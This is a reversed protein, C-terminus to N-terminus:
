RTWALAGEESKTARPTRGVAILLHLGLWDVEFHPVDGEGRDDVRIVGYRGWDYWPEAKKLAARFAAALTTAAVDLDARWWRRSALKAHLVALSNAAPATRPAPRYIDPM